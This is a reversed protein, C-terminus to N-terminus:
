IMFVLPPHLKKNIINCSLTLVLVLCAYIWGLNKKPSLVKTAVEWKSFVLNPQDKISSIFKEITDPYIYDDGGLVLYYDEDIIKIGKNLADYIGNDKESVILYDVKCNKKIVDLTGDSSLNDIIYWKFNQSIQSNLCNILNLIDNKNNFTATLIAIKNM